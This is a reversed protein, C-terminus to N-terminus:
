KGRPRSQMGNPIDLKRNAPHGPRRAQKTPPTSSSSGSSPSPSPLNRTNGLLPVNGRASSGTGMLPSGYPYPPSPYAYQAAAVNGIVPTQVIAETAPMVMGGVDHVVSNETYHKFIQIIEEFSQQRDNPNEKWAQTYVAYYWDPTGQTREERAGPSFTSYDKFPYRGALIFWYIVGLAFIDCRIDYRPRNVGRNAVREPAMFQWVGGLPQSSMAAQSGRLRRLGFDTLRAQYRPGGHHSSRRTDLLINKPHLDGHHFGCKLLYDLGVAIDLALLMRENLSPSEPANRPLHILKYLDGQDYFQMIMYREIRHDPHHRNAVGYFQVLNEHNGCLRMVEVEKDFMSANQAPTHKTDLLSKLVVFVGRSGWFAKRIEGNGGVALMQRQTFESQYDFTELRNGMGDGDMWPAIANLVSTLFLEHDLFQPVAGAEGPAGIVGGPLNAGGGGLGAAAAMDFIAGARGQGQAQLAGPGAPSPSAYGGQGSQLNTSMSSGESFALSPMDTAPAESGNGGYYASGSGGQYFHQQQQQEVPSLAQQHHQARQQNQLEELHQLHELRRAQYEQERQLQDQRLQNGYAEIRRKHDELPRTQNSDVDMGQDSIDDSHTLDPMSDM